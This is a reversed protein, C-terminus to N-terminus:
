PKPLNLVGQWLTQSPSPCSLYDHLCLLKLLQSIPCHFAHHDTVGGGQCLTLGIAQFGSFLLSDLGHSASSEAELLQRWAIHAQQCALSLGILRSGSLWV